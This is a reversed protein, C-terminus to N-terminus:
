KCGHKLRKTSLFHLLTDYSISHPKITNIIPFSKTRKQGEEYSYNNINM